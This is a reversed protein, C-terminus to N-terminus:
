VFSDSGELVIQKVKKRRMGLKDTIKDDTM